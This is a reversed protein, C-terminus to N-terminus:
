KEDLFNKFNDIDVTDQRKWGKFSELTDDITESQLNVGWNNVVNILFKKDDIDYRISTRTYDDNDLSVDWNDNEIVLGYFPVCTLMLTKSFVLSHFGSTFSVWLEVETEM